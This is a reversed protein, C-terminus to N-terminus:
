IIYRTFGKGHHSKSKVHRHWTAVVRVDLSAKSILLKSCTIKKMSSAASSTSVYRYMSNCLCFIVWGWSPSFVDPQYVGDVIQVEVQWTSWDNWWLWLHVVSIWPKIQLQKHTIRIGGFDYPYGDILMFNFIWHFFTWEKYPVGSTLLPFKTKLGIRCIYIYIKLNEVVVFLVFCHQMSKVSLPCFEGSFFCCGRNKTTKLHLSEM